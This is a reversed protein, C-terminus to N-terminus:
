PGLPTIYLTDGAVCGLETAAHGFSIAIQLYGDDEILAVWEGRGVDGYDTSLRARVIRDNHRLEFTRNLVIGRRALAKGSLDTNINAYEESIRTVNAVLLSATESPNPALHACSLLLAACLIRIIM